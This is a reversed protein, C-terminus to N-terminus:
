LTKRFDVTARTYVDYNVAGAQTTGIANIAFNLGFFDVSAGGSMSIWQNSLKGVNATTGLTPNTQLSTFAAPKFVVKFMKGGQHFKCNGYQLLSTMSGNSFAGDQDIATIIDGLQEYQITVNSPAYDANGFRPMFIYELKVVKYEDFMQTFDTYGPLSAIQFGLNYSAYQFTTGGSTFPAFMNPIVSNSVGSSNTGGFCLAGNVTRTLRITGMTARMGGRTVPGYGYRRRRGNTAGRKGM